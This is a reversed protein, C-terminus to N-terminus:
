SGHTRKFKTLHISTLCRVSDSPVTRIIYQHILNVVLDLEKPEEESIGLSLNM